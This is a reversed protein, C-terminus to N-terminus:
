AKYESESSLLIYDREDFMQKLKEFSLVEGKKYVSKRQRKRKIGLKLRENKIASSSRSLVDGIEKDTMNLYNDRIYNDEDETWIRVRPIIQM